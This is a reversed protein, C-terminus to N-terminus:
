GTLPPARGNAADSRTRVAVAERGSDALAGYVVREVDLHRNSVHVALVGDPGLHRFYLAFAQRTLLHVPISDSSFADAVLLDYGRPPEQELSLRADGEVIQVEAQSDDLYTFHQRAFRIVLPNIEYFRLQDGSRGYAALTGVGLGIM